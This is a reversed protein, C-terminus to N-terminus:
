NLSEFTGAHDYFVFGILLRDLLCMVCHSGSMGVEQAHWGRNVEIVQVFSHQLVLPKPKITV